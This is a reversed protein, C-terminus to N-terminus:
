VEELNRESYVANVKDNVTIKGKSPYIFYYKNFGPVPDPAAFIPIFHHEKCFNVLEPRNHKDITAVEDIFLTIRNDKDHVAL